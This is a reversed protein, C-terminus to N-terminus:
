AKGLKKLRAIELLKERAKFAPIHGKVWKTAPIYACALDLAVLIMKECDFFDRRDGNFSVWESYDQGNANKQAHTNPKVNCIQEFYTADADIPLYWGYHGQKHPSYMLELLRVQYRLADVLFLKKDTKSARFAQNDLNKGSTGKYYYANAHSLVFPTMDVDNSFGGHDILCLTVNHGYYTGQLHQEVEQLNHDTWAGLHYSNGQEDFGRVVSCFYKEGAGSQQDVAM